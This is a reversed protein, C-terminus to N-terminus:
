GHEGTARRSNVGYAGQENSSGVSDTGRLLVRENPTTQAACEAKREYEANRLAVRPTM